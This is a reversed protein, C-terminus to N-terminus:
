CARAEWAVTGATEIALRALRENAGVVRVVAGNPLEIELGEPGPMAEPLRIPVFSAQPAPQSKAKLEAKLRARWAYFTAVSVAERRCFKAVSGGCQEFRGLRERWVERRQADRERVM